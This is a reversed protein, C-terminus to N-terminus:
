IMSLDNISSSLKFSFKVSNALFAVSEKCLEQREM